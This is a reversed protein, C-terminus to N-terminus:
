TVMWSPRLETVPTPVHIANAEAALEAARRLHRQRNADTRCEAARCELEFARGLLDYKRRQKAEDTEEPEPEPLAAFLDVQPGPDASGRRKM